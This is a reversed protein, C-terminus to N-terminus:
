QVLVYQSTDIGDLDDSIYIGNGGKGEPEKVIWVNSEPYNEKQQQYFQTFQGADHPMQFSQLFYDFEEAGFKNRLRLYNAFCRDKTAWEDGFPFTQVRQYPKLAKLEEGRTYYELEYFLNWDDGYTHTWGHDEMLAREYRRLKDVMKFHPRRGEAM